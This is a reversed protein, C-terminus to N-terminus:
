RIGCLYFEAADLLAGQRDPPASQIRQATERFSDDAQSMASLRAAPTNGHNRVLQTCADAPASFLTGRNQRIIPNDEAAATAGGPVLGFRTFRVIELADKQPFHADVLAQVEDKPPPALVDHTRMYIGLLMFGAAFVSFVTIRILSPAFNGGILKDGLGIFTTALATISGVVTAAVPSITLGILLGLFIGLAAGAVIDMWKGWGRKLM